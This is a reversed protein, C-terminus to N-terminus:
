VEAEPALNRFRREHFWSLADATDNSVGLVHEDVFLLNHCLCHLLFFGESIEDDLSFSIHGQYSFPCSSLQGM